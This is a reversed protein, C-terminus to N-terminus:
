LPYNVASMLYCNTFGGIKFDVRPSSVSSRPLLLLRWHCDWVATIRPSATLSALSTPRAPLEKGLKRRLFRHSKAVKEGTLFNSFGWALTAM